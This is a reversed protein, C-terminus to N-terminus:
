TLCERWLLANHPSWPDPHPIYPEHAALQEPAPPQALLEAEWKRNLEKQEDSPLVDQGACARLLWACCVRVTLLLFRDLAAALAAALAPTLLARPSRVQPRCSRWHM